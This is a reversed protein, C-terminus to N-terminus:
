FGLLCNFLGQFDILDKIRIIIEEIIKYLNRILFRNFSQFFREFDILDKIRIIIEEM